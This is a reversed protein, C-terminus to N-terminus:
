GRWARWPDRGVDESPTRAERAGPPTPRRRLKPAPDRPAHPSAVPPGLLARPRSPPLPPPPDRGGGMDRRAAAQWGVARGGRLTDAFVRRQPITRHRRPTSACLPNEERGKQGGEHDDRVQRQRGALGGADRAPGLARVRERGRRRGEFGRRRADRRHWRRRSRCPGRGRSRLCRRRPGGDAQRRARRRRASRSSRRGRRRSRGDTRRGGRRVARGRREEGHRSRNRPHGNWRRRRRRRSGRRGRDSRGDAGDGEVRRNGGRRRDPDRHAVGDLRYRAGDIGGQPRECAAQASGAVSERSHSKM